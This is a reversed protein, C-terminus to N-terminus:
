RLRLKCFAISGETRYGSYTVSIVSELNAIVSEKRVKHKRLDDSLLHVFKRSGGGGWSHDISGPIFLFLWFLEKQM